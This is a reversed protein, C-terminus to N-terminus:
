IEKLARDKDVVGGDLTGFKLDNQLAIRAITLSRRQDPSLHHGDVTPKKPDLVDTMTAVHGGERRFGAPLYRPAQPHADTEKDKSLHASDARPSKRPSRTRSARRRKKLM